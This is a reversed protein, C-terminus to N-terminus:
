LFPNIIFFAINAVIINKDEIDNYESLEIPTLIVAGIPLLPTISNPALDSSWLYLLLYL